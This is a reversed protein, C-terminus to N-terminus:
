KRILTNFEEVFSEIYKKELVLINRKLENEEVEYDYSSISTKMLVGNSYLPYTAYTYDVNDITFEYPVQIFNTRRDSGPDSKYNDTVKTVNPRIYYLLSSRAAASSGYKEEIYDDLQTSTLPFDYQVDFRDNVLMITWYYDVKGYIKYSVSEPTEGELMVYNYFLARDNELYNKRVVRNTINQLILYNNPDQFNPYLVYNFSSFYSM